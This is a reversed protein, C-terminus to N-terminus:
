ISTRQKKRSFRPEGMADRLSSQGMKKMARWYIQDARSRSIGMYRAITSGEEGGRDAIDLVCSEDEDCGPRYTIHGGKGVELWMHYKCGVWPCPRPGNVCDGRTKPRNALAERDKKEIRKLYSTKGICARCTKSRTGNELKLFGYIEMIKGCTDCIASPKGRAMDVGRSRRAEMREDNCKRCVRGGSRIRDTHRFEDAAQETKCIQCVRPSNSRM